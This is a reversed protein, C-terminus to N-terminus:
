GSAFAYSRQLDAGLSQRALSEVYTWTAASNYHDDEAGAHLGVPDVGIRIIALTLNNSFELSLGALVM